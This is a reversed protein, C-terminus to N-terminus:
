TKLTKTSCYKILPVIFYRKIHNNSSCIFSFINEVVDQNLIRVGYFQTAAEKFYRDKAAWKEYYDKINLDLRFYNSLLSNYEDEKNVTNESETHTQKSEYVKYLLHDDKQKLIWLKKDFVGIWEDTDVNHQWRYM